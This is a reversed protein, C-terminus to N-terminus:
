PGTQLFGVKEDQFRDTGPKWFTAEVMLEVRTRPRRSSFASSKSSSFCITLGRGMPVTSKKPSQLGPGAILSASPNPFWSICGFQSTKELPSIKSAVTGPAASRWTNKGPASAWFRPLSRSPASPHATHLKTVEFGSTKLMVSSQPYRSCTPPTAVDENM